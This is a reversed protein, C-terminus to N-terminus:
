LGKVKEFERYTAERIEPRLREQQVGEQIARNARHNALAYLLSRETDGILDKVGGIGFKRNWHKRLTMFSNPSSAKNGAPDVYGVWKEKITDNVARISSVTDNYALAAELGTLAEIKNLTKVRNKTSM